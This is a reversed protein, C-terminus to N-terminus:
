QDFLPIDFAVAYCQSQLDLLVLLVRLLDHALSVYVQEDDKVIFYILQKRYRVYLM